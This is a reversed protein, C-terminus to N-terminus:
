LFMLKTQGKKLTPDYRFSLRRKSDCGQTNGSNIEHRNLFNNNNNNNNNKNNAYTNKSITMLDNNKKNYSNNNNLKNNNNMSCQTYQKGHTQLPNM